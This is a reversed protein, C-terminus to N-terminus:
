IEKKYETGLIGEISFGNLKNEENLKWIEKNEIRYEAMWTGNPLNKFEKPLKERKNDNVIFSKTLFVGEVNIGNHNITINNEIKKEHFEDRLEKITEKSFFIYHDEPININAQRFVMKDPILVPGFILNIKM